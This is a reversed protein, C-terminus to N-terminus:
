SPLIMMFRFQLNDLSAKPKVNAMLPAAQTVSGVLLEFESIPLAVGDGNADGVTAAVVSTVPTGTV